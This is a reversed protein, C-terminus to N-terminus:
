YQIVMQYLSLNNLKEKLGVNDVLVLHVRRFLLLLITIHPFNIYLYM